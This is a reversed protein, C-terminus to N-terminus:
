TKMSHSKLCTEATICWPPAPVVAQPRRLPRGVAITGNKPSYTKKREQQLVVGLTEGWGVMRPLCPKLLPHQVGAGPGYFM